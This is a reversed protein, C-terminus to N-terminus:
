KYRALEVHCTGTTRRPRRIGPGPKDIRVLFGAALKQLTCLASSLSLSLSLGVVCVRFTKKGRPLTTSTGTWTSKRSAAAAAARTYSAAGRSGTSTNGNGDGQPGTEHRLHHQVQRVPQGQVPGTKIPPNRPRMANSLRTKEANKISSSDSPHPDPQNARNCKRMRDPITGPEFFSSLEANPHAFALLSLLLVSLSVPVLRCSRSRTIRLLTTTGSM